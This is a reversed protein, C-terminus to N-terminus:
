SIYIFLHDRLLLLITQSTDVHRMVDHVPQPYLRVAAKSGTDETEKECVTRLLHNLKEKGARSDLKVLAECCIM